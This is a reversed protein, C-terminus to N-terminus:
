PREGSVLELVRVGYHGDVAVVEGRAIVRDNVRVEVNDHLARDLEVVSGATLNLLDKMRIQTAGFSVSVPVQVHMLMDSSNMRVPRSPVAAIAPEIKVPGGLANEFESSLVCCANPWQGAPYRIEIAIRTWDASPADAPGSDQAAARDGFQAEVANAFCRSILAFANEQTNESSGSRGFKEWTGEPGGIFFNARPDTSLGGSWWTWAEANDQPDPTLSWDLRIDEPGAESLAESVARTFADLIGSILEHKDM